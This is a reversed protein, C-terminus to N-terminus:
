PNAMPLGVDEGVNACGCGWGGCFKEGDPQLPERLVENRVVVGPRLNCDVLSDDLASDVGLWGLSSYGCRNRFRLM